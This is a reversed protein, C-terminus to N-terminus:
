PQILSDGLPPKTACCEAREHHSAPRPTGSPKKTAQIMMAAVPGLGSEDIPHHNMVIITERVIANPIAEAIPNPWVKCRL